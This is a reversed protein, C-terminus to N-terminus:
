TKEEKKLNSIYLYVMHAELKLVIKLKTKTKRLSFLRMLVSICKNTVFAVKLIKYLAVSFKRICFEVFM